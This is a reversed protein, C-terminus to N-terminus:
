VGSYAFIDTTAPLGDTFVGVVVVEGRDISANGNANNFYLLAGGDGEADHVLLLFDMASGDSGTKGAIGSLDIANNLAKLTDSDTLKLEATSFTSNIVLEVAEHSVNVVTKLNPMSYAWQLVNDYNEDITVGANGMFSIKDSGSQFGIILDSAESSAVQDIVINLKGGNGAVIVDHASGTQVIGDASGSDVLVYSVQPNAENYIFSNGIAQSQQVTFGEQIINGDVGGAFIMTGANLAGDKSAISDKKWELQYVNTALLGDFRIVTNENMGFAPGSTYDVATAKQQLSSFDYLHVGDRDLFGSESGTGTAQQVAYPISFLRVDSHGYEFYYEARAVNSYIMPKSWPGDIFQETVASANGAKDSVRVEITPDSSQLAIKEITYTSDGNSKAEQWGTSGNKVRWEVIDTTAGEHKLVLAVENLDTKFTGPASGTISVFSLKNEPAVKDLTFKLTQVDSINGAADLQRVYFKGSAIQLSTLDFSASGTDNNVGGLLWSKGDTSYEWATLSNKELGGITVAGNSTIGDGDIGTDKVLTVTPAQPAQSDLTFTFETARSINGSADTQRVTVTNLGDEFVPPTEGWSETAHGGNDNLHMQTQLYEVKAGAEIRGSVIQEIHHIHIGDVDFYKSAEDPVVSLVPAAAFSDYIVQHSQSAFPNGNADVARVHVTTSLDAVSEILQVSSSPLSAPQVTQVPKGQTLDIGSISIINAYSEKITEVGANIWKTGDLSYEFREGAALEKGRYTFAVKPTALNTVHDPSTDHAGQTVALFDITMKTVPVPTPTPTVIPTTPYVVEVAAPLGGKALAEVVDTLTANAPMVKLVKDMGGGRLLSELTVPDGAAAKATGALAQTLAVPDKLGRASDYLNLLTSGTAIAEVVKPNKTATDAFSVAAKVLTALDTDTADATVARVLVRAAEISAYGSYETSGDEVAATFADAAKQRLTSLDLDSSQAGKLIALSVEALTANGQEVANSWFALGAADPARNFLQEYIDTIRASVTDSGFRTQAEQSTAFAVIIAGADGNNDTLAKSWFKLGAPDAPRGYFALYFSNVTSDYTSFTSM